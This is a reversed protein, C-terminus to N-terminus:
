FLDKSLPELLVMALIVRITPQDKLLLVSGKQIYEQIPRQKTTGSVAM